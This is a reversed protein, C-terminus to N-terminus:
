KSHQFKIQVKSHQKNLGINVKTFKKKKKKSVSTWIRKTKEKLNKKFRIDFDAEFIQSVSTLIRKTIKKKKKFCIDL